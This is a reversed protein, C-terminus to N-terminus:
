LYHAIDTFFFTGAQKRTAGVGAAMTALAPADALVCSVRDIDGEVVVRVFDLFGSTM